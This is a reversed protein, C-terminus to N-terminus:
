EKGKESAAAEDRAIKDLYNRAARLQRIDDDDLRSEDGGCKKLALSVLAEFESKAAEVDGKGVNYTQRANHLALELSDPNHELGEKIIRRALADDKMMRWAVYWATAWANVNHPNSKVSAWFWPMMEVTRKGELHREVQPARIRENIWRWPDPFSHAHADAGPASEDHHHHEGAEEHADGHDHDHDDHKVHDHDHQEHHGHDHDHHHGHDRDRMECDHDMDIGGHFYSDATKFMATSIVDKAGGFAVSLADDGSVVQPMADGMRAAAFALAASSVVGATM